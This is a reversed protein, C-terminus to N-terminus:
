IIIHNIVDLLIEREISFSFSNREQNELIGCCLVVTHPMKLLPRWKIGEKYFASSLYKERKGTIAIDYGKV